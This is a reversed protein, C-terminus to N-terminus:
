REPRKAEEEAMIADMEKAIEDIEVYGEAEAERRADDLSRVFATRQEERQKFLKLPADV